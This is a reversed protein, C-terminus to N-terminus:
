ITFSGYFSQNSPKVLESKLDVQKVLLNFTRLIFAQVSCGYM